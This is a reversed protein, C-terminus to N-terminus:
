MVDCGMGNRNWFDGVIDAAYCDWECGADILVSAKGRIPQDNRVYHMTAGARGSAMISDYAQNRAGHEVCAALYVAELEAENTVTGRAIAALVSDHARSSIDNAKRMLAIEYSDKVVRCTNIAPKLASFDKDDFQVFTVHPSVQEAIAFVKSSASALAALEANLDTTFKVEDVDFRALAEDVSVPLGSWIVDNPDIPPFYLTSRDTNIDYTYHCDALPCGTLYYFYRRQRFPEPQDNDELLKTMRSELYLVGSSLSAGAQAGLHEVVRRAHAKAPYRGKLIANYDVMAATSLTSIHGTLRSPGTQNPLRASLSIAHVYIRSTAILKHM